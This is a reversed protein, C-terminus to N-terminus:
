EEKNNKYIETYNQWQKNVKKVYERTEKFPIYSLDRGNKSYKSDSLWGDVNAPGANYAALAVDINGDYKDILYRLYYCGIKINDEPKFLDISEVEIDMKGCVWEATTETIQMLGSAKGSHADPIFNSETKIVAMVLYQDLNNEYSCRAIIDPYASPYVLNEYTDKGVRAGFM